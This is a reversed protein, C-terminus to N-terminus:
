RQSVDNLVTSSLFHGPGDFTIGARAEATQAGVTERQLLCTVLRLIVDVRGRLERFMRLEHQM